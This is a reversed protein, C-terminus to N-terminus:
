CAVLIDAFCYVLSNNGTLHAIAYLISQLSLDTSLVLAPQPLMVETKYGIIGMRLSKPGFIAIILSWFVPFVDTYLDEYLLIVGPLSFNRGPKKIRSGSVAALPSFIPL